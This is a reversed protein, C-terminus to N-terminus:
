CPFYYLNERFILLVVCWNGSTDSFRGFISYAGQFGGKINWKWLINNRGGLGYGGKM